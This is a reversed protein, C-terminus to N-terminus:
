LKITSRATSLDRYKSKGNNKNKSKLYLLAKAPHGM